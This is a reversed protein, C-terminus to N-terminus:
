RIAKRIRREEKVTARYRLGFMAVVIGAVGWSLVARPSVTAITIGYSAWAAMTLVIGVREYRWGVMLDESDDFLGRWVCGGGVLLLVGVAGALWHPLRDISPSVTVSTFASLVAGLGGLMGFLALGLEFQHAYVHDMNSPPRRDTTYGHLPM